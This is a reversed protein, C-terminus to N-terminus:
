SKYLGTWLKNNFFWTRLEDVTMPKKSNFSISSEVNLQNKTTDFNAYVFAPYSDVGFLNKLRTGTMNEASSIDISVIEPTPRKEQEKALPTLISNIVYDSDSKGDRILFVHNGPNEKSYKSIDDISISTSIVSDVTDVTRTIAVTQSSFQNYLGIFIAVIAFATFAVLIIKKAM